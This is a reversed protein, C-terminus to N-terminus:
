TPRAWQTTRTDHNVYYPRGEMTHREEWGALLPLSPNNEVLFSRANARITGALIVQSHYFSTVFGTNKGGRRTDFLDIMEDVRRLLSAKAKRAGAESIEGEEFIAQLQALSNSLEILEFSLGNTAQIEQAARRAM